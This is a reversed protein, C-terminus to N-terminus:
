SVAEVAAIIQAATPSRELTETGGPGDVIVAPEADLRLEITLAADAELTAEVEPDELDERWQRVSFDPNQITSAVAELYDEDAGSEPVEDQNLYFIEIFQWQAGQKGAAEAGFGALSTSRASLSFHRFELAARDTLVLKRVLDPIVEFHYDSCSDCLLDNFVSVTVPAEEEGLRNGIQDIGGYLRQAQSAGTIEVESVRNEGISISVMAGIVAAGLVSLITLPIWRRRM